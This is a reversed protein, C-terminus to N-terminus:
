QDVEVEITLIGNRIFAQSIGPVELEFQDSDDHPIVIVTDGVVDLTAEQGLASGLDAAVVHYDDYQYHRVFQEGGSVFEQIHM